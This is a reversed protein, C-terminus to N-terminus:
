KHYFDICSSIFIGDAKEIKNIAFRKHFIECRNRKRLADLKMISGIVLPM